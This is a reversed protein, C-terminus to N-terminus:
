QKDDHRTCLPTTLPLPTAFTHGLASISKMEQEATNSM